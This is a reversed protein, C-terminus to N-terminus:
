KKNSKKPNDMARKKLPIDLKKLLKGAEDNGGYYAPKWWRVAKDISKKIGNGNNYCNGLYYMAEVHEEEALTQFIAVAETYKKADYLEKAVTFKKDVEANGTTSLAAPKETQTKTKDGRLVLALTDVIASAVEQTLGYEEELDRVKAKKCSALDEAEKIAKAVGAEVAQVIMRSEKKYENKTYDTLFAKCQKSDKLVANLHENVLQKLIDIFGQDM